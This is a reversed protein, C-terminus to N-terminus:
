LSCVFLPMGYKEFKMSKLGAMYQFIVRVQPSNDKLRKPNRSFPFLHCADDYGIIILNGDRVKFSRANFVQCLYQHVQFM